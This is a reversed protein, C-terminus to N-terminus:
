TSIRKKKKKEGLKVGGKPKPNPKTALKQSLPKRTFDPSGISFKWTACSGYRAVRRLRLLQARAWPTPHTRKSSRNRAKATATATRRPQSNRSKKKKKKTPSRHRELSHWLDRHVWAGVPQRPIGGLPFLPRSLSGSCPPPLNALRPQPHALLHARRARPACSSACFECSERESPSGRIRLKRVQKWSPNPSM